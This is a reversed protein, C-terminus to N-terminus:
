LGQGLHRYAYVAILAVVYVGIIPILACLTSVLVFGIMQDYKGKTLAWSAQIAEIPGMNKDVIFYQTFFSRLIVMIGPVLLLIFGGIILPSLLMMSVLSSIIMRVNFVPRYKVVGTDYYSIFSRSFGLWIAMYYFLASIVILAAFSIGGVSQPFYITRGVEIGAMSFSVPMDITMCSSLPVWQALVALAIGIGIIGLAMFILSAFVFAIWSIINSFLANFTFAVANGLMSQRIQNQPEM